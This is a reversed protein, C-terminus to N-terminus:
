AAASEQEESQEGLEESKEAVVEPHEAAEDETIPTAVPVELKIFGHNVDWAIDAIALTANHRQGLSKLFEGITVSVNEKGHFGYLEYRDAASRRKPNGPVLSTIVTDHSLVKIDSPLVLSAGPRSKLVVSWRARTAAGRNPDVRKEIKSGAKAPTKDEAKAVAKNEEAKTEPNNKPNMMAQREAKSPHHNRGTANHSAM